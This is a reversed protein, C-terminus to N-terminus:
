KNKVYWAPELEAQGNDTYRLEVQFVGEDVVASAAMEKSITKAKAATNSYRRMHFKVESIVRDTVTVQAFYPSNGADIPIGGISIGFNVVYSGSAKDYFFEDPYLRAQGGSLVALKAVIMCASEFIEKEKIEEGAAQVFLANPAGGKESNTYELLGNESIRITANSDIYVKTGDKETYENSTYGTFNFCKLLEEVGDASFYDVVNVASIVDPKEKNKYIITEPILNAYKEDERECALACESGQIKSVTNLVTQGSIRTTSSYVENTIPNKIMIVANENKAGVSLLLYRGQINVGELVGGWIWGAINDLRAVGQYDYLVGPGRLAKEWEEESTKSWVGSVSLAEAVLSRTNDYFVTLSQDERATAYRFQASKISIRVPNLQATSSYAGFAYENRINQADVFSSSSQMTGSAPRDYFWTIYSMFVAGCVLVILLLTKIREHTTKM